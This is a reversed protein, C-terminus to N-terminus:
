MVESVNVYRQYKKKYLEKLEKNPQIIKKIHVCQAVAQEYSEFVGSAVGACIAAGQTGFEENEVVELPFQLIDAFIQLWIDSKIIGGAIRIAKPPTRFALLRLLHTKHAFAVGEYVARVIDAKTHHAQMGIFSAHASSANSGYLFPTYLIGEECPKSSAVLANCTDYDDLNMCEKMIWELNGSSTPSSEEVLTYQSLAYFSQFMVKTDFIRKATIYVNISWTGAIMALQEENVIGCGICCADVDFMGASMPMHEKLGTEMAAEHSLFCCQDSSNVLRPLAEYVEEIGFLALLKKHYGNSAFDILNSGSFDTYEAHIAGSLRYRIYDKVSLISGIQAYRDQQYLKMWRLLAVPQMHQVKQYTLAFVKDSVGNKNWEEVIEMARQDMSTIGNGLPKGQKDLLYLGKGHGSFSMAKIRDSSVNCKQLLEKLCAVNQKWLDELDREVFGAQPYLATLKRQAIGLQNGQEDFMAAKVSTGGNDLGILYQKM